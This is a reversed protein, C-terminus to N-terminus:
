EQEKRKRSEMKATAAPGCNLHTQHCPQIHLAEYAPQSRGPSCVPIPAAIHASNKDGDSGGQHHPGSKGVHSGRDGGAQWRNGFERDGLINRRKCANGKETASMCSKTRAWFSWVRSTVPWSVTAWILTLRRPAGRTGTQEKIESGAPVSIFRVKAQLSLYGRQLADSWFIM